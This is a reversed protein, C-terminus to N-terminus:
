GRHLWNEVKHQPSMKKKHSHKHRNDYITKAEGTRPDPVMVKVNNKTDVDIIAPILVSSSAAPFSEEDSADHSFDSGATPRDERPASNSPYRFTYTFATAPNPSTKIPQQYYSMRPLPQMYNYSRYTPSRSFDWEIDGTASM